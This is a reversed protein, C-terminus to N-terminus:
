LQHLQYDKLLVAMKLLQWGFVSNETTGNNLIFGKKFM